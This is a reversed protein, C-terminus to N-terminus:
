SQDHEHRSDEGTSATPLTSPLYAAFVREFRHEAFVWRGDSDLICRCQVNGLRLQLHTSSKEPEFAYNTLVAQLRAQAADILRYEVNSWLHRTRRRPDSCRSRYFSEIASRGVIQKEGPCFVGDVAFLRAVDAPARSDVADSFRVLILPVSAGDRQDQM